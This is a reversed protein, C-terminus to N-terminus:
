ILIIDKIDFDRGKQIKTGTLRCSYASVVEKAGTYPSVRIRLICFVELGILDRYWWDKYQCDAILVTAYVQEQRRKEPYSHDYMSSEEIRQLDTKMKGIELLALLEM